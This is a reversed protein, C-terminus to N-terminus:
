QHKHQLPTTHKTSTLSPRTCFPSLIVAAEVPARQACPQAARSAPTCQADTRSAPLAANRMQAAMARHNVATLCVPPAARLASTGSCRQIAYGQADMHLCWSHPSRPPAAPEPALGWQRAASLVPTLEYEYQTASGAAQMGGSGNTCTCSQGGARDRTHGCSPVELTGAHHCRM